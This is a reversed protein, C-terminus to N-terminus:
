LPKASLPHRPGTRQALPDSRTPHMGLPHRRKKQGTGEPSLSLQKNSGTRQSVIEALNKVVRSILNLVSAIPSVTFFDLIVEAVQEESMRFELHHALKDLDKDGPSKGKETLIVALILHLKDAFAVIMSRPTIEMPMPIGDIVSNLQRWQGFVLPRLEYTEGDIEYTKVTPESM